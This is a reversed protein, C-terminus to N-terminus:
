NSATVTQSRTVQGNSNTATLSVQHPKGDCAVNPIETSGGAPDLGAHAGIADGDVAFEIAEANETKWTATVNANQGTCGDVKDSYSVIVPKGSSGGRETKVFHVVAASGGSKDLAQLVVRHTENKCALTVNATGNAPDDTQVFAGDVEIKVEDAGTTTWSAKADVTDGSCHVDNAISFTKVIVGGSGSSSGSSTPGPTPSSANNSSSCAALVLGAAALAAFPLRLRM